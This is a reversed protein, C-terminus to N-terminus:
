SLQAMRRRQPIAGGHHPEGGRVRPLRNASAVDGAQRAEGAPDLASSRPSGAVFRADYRSIAKPGAHAHRDAGPSPTSPSGTVRGAGPGPVEHFMRVGAKSVGYPPATSGRSLARSRPSRQRDPRLAAADHAAGGGPCLLGDRALQRGPHPGLGKGRHRDGSGRSTPGLQRHGRREGARRPTGNGERRRRDGSGSAGSGLRRARCACGSWWGGPHNEGGRRTRPTGIASRSARGQRGARARHRASVRPQEPPRRGSARKGHDGWGGDSRIELRGSRNQPRLWRFRDAESAM